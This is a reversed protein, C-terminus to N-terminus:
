SVYDINTKEEDTWALGDPAAFENLLVSMDIKSKGQQYEAYVVLRMSVIIEERM